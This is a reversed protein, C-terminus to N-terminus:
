GALAEPEAETVPAPAQSTRVAVVGLALLVVAMGAVQTGVVPEDLFVAASAVAVIPVALTLVSMVSLDVHDHAWNVLLHGIGGSGIALAIIWAWDHADSPLFRGGLLIAFPAAVLTAVFLLGTLYELPDRKPRAQKSAIFYGTWAFLAGIALLDGFPSWAPTGASGYMVVAVGAIAAATWGVIAVTIREGFLRGVVLFLFAPQLAGIVTANAV